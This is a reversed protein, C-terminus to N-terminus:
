GAAPGPTTRSNPNISSIKKASVLTALAPTQPRANNSAIRLAANNMSLALARSGSSASAPLRTDHTTSNM